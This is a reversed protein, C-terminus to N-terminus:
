VAPQERIDAASVISDTNHQDVFDKGIQVAVARLKPMFRQIAESEPVASSSCRLAVSALLRDNAIIPVAFSLEDSIRRKRRSVSYGRKRTEVLMEYVKKRNRAPKNEEKRSKALIDLLSDRQEKPCFALYCIGSASGLIPVRFGPGTKEVALPSEHDTTQRILM